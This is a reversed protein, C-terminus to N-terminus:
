PTNGAEGNRLNRTPLRGLSSRRRARV